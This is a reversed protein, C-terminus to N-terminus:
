PHNTLNQRNHFPSATLRQLQKCEISGYKPFTVTSLAGPWYVTIAKGEHHGEYLDDLGRAEKKRAIIM